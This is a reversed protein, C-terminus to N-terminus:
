AAPAPPPLPPPPSIEPTISKRLGTVLSYVFVLLAYIFPLLVVAVVLIALGGFDGTNFAYALLLIVVLMGIPNGSDSSAPTQAVSFLVMWLTVFFAYVVALILAITTGRGADRLRKAHIAYWIWTLAMQVLFLPAVGIRSLMSGDVVSSIAFNFLYIAIAALAFPGPKLTGNMSVFLAAANM